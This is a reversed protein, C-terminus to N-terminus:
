EDDFFPDLKQEGEDAEVKVEEVGKEENVEVKEKVVMEEKKEEVKVEVKTRMAEEDRAKLAQAGFTKEYPEEDEEPM